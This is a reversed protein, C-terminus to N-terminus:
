FKTSIKNFNQKDEENLLKQMYIISSKKMRDRNAFSVKYKEQYGQNMIHKKENEPFLDKLKNHKISDKAFQLCLQKRREELTQINLTLLANEYSNNEGTKYKNPLVLKVFSKQTRELDEINEQTLSSTWVVASQELISRCYIIWLHTMEEETAGFSYMKKLLLM